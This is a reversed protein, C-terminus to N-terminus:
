RPYVSEIRLISKLTPGNVMNMMKQMHTFAKEEYGNCIKHAKSIPSYCENKLVPDGWLYFMLTMTKRARTIKRTVPIAKIMGFKVSKRFIAPLRPAPMIAKTRGGRSYLLSNLSVILQGLHTNLRHTTAKPITPEMRLM